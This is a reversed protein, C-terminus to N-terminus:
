KVMGLDTLLALFFKDEAELERQFDAQGAFEIETLTRQAFDVFEPSRSAQEAAAAIKAVAADPTEAPAWFGVRPPMVLDIGADRFIPVNPIVKARKGGFQAIPVLRNGEAQPWIAQAFGLALDVTGGVTATVAPTIGQFPIHNLKIGAARAFAAGALHTAGGTGASGFSVKEPNAKAYAVLEKLDKFPAGVRAAMMNPGTTIQAVPKLNRFGYPLKNQHPAVTQVSSVAFLLTHGDPKANAVVGAGITGGAGPRTEVIVPKGLIKELHQGLTRVTQDTSGPAYPVIVTINETPFAHAAGVGLIGAAATGAATKLLTRRSMDHMKARKTM